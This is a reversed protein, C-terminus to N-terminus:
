SQCTHYHVSDPLVNPKNLTVSIIVISVTSTSMM